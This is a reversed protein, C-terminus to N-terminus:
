AAGGQAAVASCPIFAPYYDGPQATAAWACADEDDANAAVFAPLTCRQGDVEFDVGATPTPSTQM